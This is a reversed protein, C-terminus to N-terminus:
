FCVPFFSASATGPHLQPHHPATLHSTASLSQPCPCRGKRVQRQCPHQVTVYLSPVLALCSFRGGHDWGLVCVHKIKLSHILLRTGFFCAYSREPATNCSSPNSNWRETVWQVLKEKWLHNSKKGGGERLDRMKTCGKLILWWRAPKQFGVLYNHGRVVPANLMWTGNRFLLIVQKFCKGSILFASPESLMEWFSHSEPCLSLCSPFLFGKRQPSGVTHQTCVASWACVRGKEGLPIISYFDVTLWLCIHKRRLGFSNNISDKYATIGWIVLSIHYTAVTYTM